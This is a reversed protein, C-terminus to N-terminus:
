FETSSPLWPNRMMQGTRVVTLDSDDVLMQAGSPPASEVWTTLRSAHVEALAFWLSQGKHQCEVVVVDSLRAPLLDPNVVDHRCNVRLNRRDFSRPHRVESVLTRMVKLQDGDFWALAEDWQADGLWVPANETSAERLAAGLAEEAASRESSIPRRVVDDRLYSDLPTRQASQGSQVTEGSQVTMDERRVWCVFTLRNHAFFRRAGLVLGVGMVSLVAGLLVLGITTLEGM